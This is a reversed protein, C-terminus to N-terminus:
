CWLYCAGGGMIFGNVIAIAGMCKDGCWSPSWPSIPADITDIEFAADNIDIANIEAILDPHLERAALLSHQL